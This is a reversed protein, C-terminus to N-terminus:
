FELCKKDGLVVAVACGENRHFKNRRVISKCRETYVEWVRLVLGDYDDARRPSLHQPLFGVKCGVVGGAMVFVALVDDEEDGRYRMKEKFVKLKMRPVVQNGCCDHQPCKRGRNNANIGVVDVMSGVLAAVVDAQRPAAPASERAGSISLSYQLPSDVRASIATPAPLGEQRMWIMYRIPDEAGCGRCLGPEIGENTCACDACEWAIPVPPITAM